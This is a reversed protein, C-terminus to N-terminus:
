PPLAKPTVATTPIHLTPPLSACAVYLGQVHNMRGLSGGETQSKQHMRAALRSLPEQSQCYLNLESIERTPGKSRDLRWRLARWFALWFDKARIMHIAVLQWNKALSTYVYVVCLM